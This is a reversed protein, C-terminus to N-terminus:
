GIRNILDNRSEHITGSYVFFYALYLVISNHHNVCIHITITLNLVM